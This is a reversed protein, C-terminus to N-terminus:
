DGELVWGGVWLLVGIVIFVAALVAFQPDLQMFACAIMVGSM